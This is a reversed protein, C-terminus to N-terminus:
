SDSDSGLGSIISDTTSSHSDSELDSDDFFHKRNQKKSKKDYTKYGGTQKDITQKDITQKDITQKDITQKDITEEKNHESTEEKKHESTQEKTREESVEQEEESSSSDLSELSSSSSSSLNKKKKEKEEDKESSSSSSKKESSELSELESGGTMESLEENNVDSEELLKSLKKIDNDSAALEEAININSGGLLKKPFEYGYVELQTPTDSLMNLEMVNKKNTKKIGGGIMNSQQKLAMYKAKYKLYKTEWINSSPQSAESRANKLYKSEYIDLNPTIKGGSFNANKLYKTEYSAM